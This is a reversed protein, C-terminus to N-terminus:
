VLRRCTDRLTLQRPVFHEWRIRYTPLTSSPHTFGYSVLMFNRLSFLNM